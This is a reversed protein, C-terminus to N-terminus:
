RFSDEYVAFVEADTSGDNKCDSERVKINTNEDNIDSICLCDRTSWRLGFHMGSEYLCKIHCFLPEPPGTEPLDLVFDPLGVAEFKLDGESYCGVYRPPDLKIVNIAPPLAPPPTSKKASSKKGTMMMLERGQRIRREEQGRMMLGKAGGHHFKTDEKANTAVVSSGMWLAFAVVCRYYVM